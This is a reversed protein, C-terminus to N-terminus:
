LMNAPLLMPNLDPEYASPVVLMCLETDPYRAFLRKSVEVNNRWYLGPDKLSDRVGSQGALHIILHFQEKLECTLLDQSNNLHDRDWGDKM